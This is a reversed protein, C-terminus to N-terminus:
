KKGGTSFGAIFSYIAEKLPEGEMEKVFYSVRVVPRDLGLVGKLDIPTASLVMECPCMEVTRRLEEIQRPSYGMAPLVPGIHPYQKYVEAISGIAIPRPDIIGGAKYKEAAALGAGGPMGGHTITPGDEVVLVKKGAIAPHDEATIESATHIIRAEANVSRITDTMRSVADPNVANVKNIILVHARRLNVEGPFYSTEHGPRMPDVITIELDPRIFPFDNNGGDWIIIDAEKEVEQLVKEYDVGAYVIAGAQLLPEFEEREEITCHHRDLDELTAFREVAQAALDGYPMPHRVVVAKLGREFLAGTIYRTIQSKGAGTRVACVSIVKRSSKLMTSDPGLLHFDAGLALALSAKHMVEEHSLDSYAFVVQRNAHGRLLEPLKAEDFIPIGAPYLPGSLSPPYQRDTIFPLQAATFAMVRFRPNDRFYVNFNHFDRGAAGMIIVEKPDM